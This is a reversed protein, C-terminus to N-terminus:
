LDASTVVKCRQARVMEVTGADIISIYPIANKPSYQMAVIKAGGILHPLNSQLEEHSAYLLKQGPLRDLAASEIRHVLKRPTGRSPIMYFWRRTGMGDRELGLVRAAITDRHHFDYFLWGDLKASRLERQIAAIEPM